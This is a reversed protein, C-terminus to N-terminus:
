GGGSGVPITTWQHWSPKVHASKKVELVNVVTGDLDKGRVVLHTHTHATDHHTAALWDIPRGLDKEVRQMLAEIYPQLAFYPHAKGLSMSMRFQHPDQQAALAFATVDVPRGDPGFLAADTGDRGKGQQLYQLHPGTTTGKTITGAVVTQQSGPAPPPVFRGVAGLQRLNGPLRPRHQQTQRMASLRGYTVDIELSGTEAM